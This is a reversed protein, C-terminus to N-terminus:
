KLGASKNTAPLYNSAPNTEPNKGIVPTENKATVTVISPSLTWGNRLYTRVNTKHVCQCTWSCGFETRSCKCVLVENKKCQASASFISFIAISFALLEKFLQKKM